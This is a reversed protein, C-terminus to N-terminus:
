LFVAKRTLASGMAEPTKRVLAAFDSAACQAAAAAACDANAERLRMLSHSAPLAAAKLAPLLARRGGLLQLYPPLPPLADTHGLAADMALRRMRARPYRVTTLVDLLEEQTASSQVARRLAHDLGESVGRTHAFPKEAFPGCQARLLALECRGAAAFDTFAGAADAEAYLPYIAEPVFPRIAPAGGEAWLARLASASAFRASGNLAEGHNAGRRPLPIPTMAVGLQLIAKCYEIALNNNPKDLLEALGTGPAAAEVAAQRAAAFDTFAGAADAEAYLPYVAEPVFPRIAPAGGEAWLARLASASAFRASGNLTEGHNAGRRPLPIPMMAAGLQLIAKCYEIALNNNPKDLLEALGTGPAAAEVAAQRAAAFSRAGAALAAKLAARYDDGALVRAAQLLRGADPTEAGFVLGSCGAAALLSVGARAFAEAGACAYPAPLAFVLDAGCALAAQVRVREPLLPVAGRQTLGCSLAVAVPQGGGLARARALQWAHGNHFPDYEAIIGLM